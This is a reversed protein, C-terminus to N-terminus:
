SPVVASENVDSCLTAGYLNSTKCAISSNTLLIWPSAIGQTKMYIQSVDIDSCFCGAAPEMAIIQLAAILSM